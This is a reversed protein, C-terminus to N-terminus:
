PGRLGVALQRADPTEYNPTWLDAPRRFKGNWSHTYEHPLLDRESSARTGISHFLRRGRRERQLSPARTRHRGDARHARVSLRLSRLAAIRVAPLGAARPQPAARTARGESRASGGQGRLHQSARSARRRSRPRDRACYRGAFMPSDVLTELDTEAFRTVSAETTAGDLAVALTWGDPLRVSPAVRIQAAYHGSPYLVVAEWQLNLMERTAVIRGQNTATPSVFQFELDLAEAGAPVDVHFAYVNIPDRRWPVRQGNARIEIGALLHIAGRADHKGPHWEPYLLTIPGAGAVPLRERVRFIGRAVDTADVDLAITGRYPIDRPEAIPQPTPAAVPQATAPVAALVGLISIAAALGSLRASM